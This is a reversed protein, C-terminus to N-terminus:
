GWITICSCDFRGYIYATGNPTDNLWSQAAAEARSSTIYKGTYVIRGKRDCVTVEYAWQKRM